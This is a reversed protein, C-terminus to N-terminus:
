IYDTVPSIKSLRSIKEFAASDGLKAQRITESLSAQDFSHPKSKESCHQRGLVSRRRGLLNQHSQRSQGTLGASEVKDETPYEIDVAVSM